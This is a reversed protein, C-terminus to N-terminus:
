SLWKVRERYIKLLWFGKYHLPKQDEEHIMSLKKM